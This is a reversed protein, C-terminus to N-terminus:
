KNRLRDFEKELQQAYSRAQAAYQGRQALQFHQLAAVVEARQLSGLKRGEVYSLGLYYHADYNGGAAAERFEALAAPRNASWLQQGRGYHEAPSVPAPSPQPTPAPQPAPTPTPAAATPAPTPNLAAVTEGERVPPAAPQEGGHQTPSPTPQAATLEALHQRAANAADPPASAALQEYLARSEEARGSLRLADAYSLLDAPDVSQQGVLAVLRRYSEAADRYLSEAFQASALQRWAGADEPEARVVARLEEVAERRAGTSLLLEALRRHARPNAPDLGTAERLSAVAGDMNGSALLAEAEALKQEYQQRADSTVPPATPGQTPLNTVDPRRLLKFALWAGGGAVVIVAACAAAVLPWARRKGAGRSPTGARAEGVSARAAPPAHRSDDHPVNARAPDYASPRTAEFDAPRTAEFDSPRTSDLDAAHTADFDATAEFD